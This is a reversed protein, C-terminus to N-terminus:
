SCPPQTQDTADAALRALLYHFRKASTLNLWLPCPAAATAAIVFPEDQSPEDIRYIFGL